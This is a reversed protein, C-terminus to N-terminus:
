KREIGSASSTGTRHRYKESINFERAYQNDSALNVGLVEDFHPKQNPRFRGFKIVVNNYSILQTYKEGHWDHWTAGRALEDETFGTYIVVPADCHFDNRLKKVFDVLECISEMPELGGCVIAQTIPNEIFNKCLQDTDVQIIPERALSANQCLAVKNEIDCKFNCYPFILYMSPLRYNVFDENILGKLKM